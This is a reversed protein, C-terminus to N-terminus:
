TLPLDYIKIINDEYLIAEAGNSEQIYLGVNQELLKKFQETSVFVLTSM